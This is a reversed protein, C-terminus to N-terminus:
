QKSKASAIKKKDVSSSTEKGKRKTSASKTDCQGNMSKGEEKSEEEPNM